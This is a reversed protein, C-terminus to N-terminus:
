PAPTNEERDKQKFRKRINSKEKSDLLDQGKDSGSIIKRVTREIEASYSKGDPQVFPHERIASYMKDRVNYKMYGGQMIWPHGNPLELPLRKIIRRLCTEVMRSTKLRGMCNMMNYILKEFEELAKSKADDTSVDLLATRSVLEDAIAFAISTGFNVNGGSQGSKYQEDFSKALKDNIDGTDLYSKAIPIANIMYQYAYVALGSGFAPGCLSRADREIERKYENSASINNAYCADMEAMTAILNELSRPTSTSEMSGQRAMTNYMDSHNTLFSVLISIYSHRTGYKEEILEIFDNKDLYMFYSQLRSAIAASLEDSVTNDARGINGTAGITVNDHIRFGQVQRGELMGHLAGTLSKDAATLDDICFYSGAPLGMKSFMPNKVRVMEQHGSPLKKLNPLGFVAFNSDEGAMELSNFVFDNDKIEFQEDPCEVYRLNLLKAVVKSAKRLTTTKGQGPPGYIMKPARDGRLRSWSFKKKFHIEYASEIERRIDRRVPKNEVYEINNNEDRKYVVPNANYMNCLIDRIIEDCIRKAAILPVPINSYPGIEVTKKTGTKANM